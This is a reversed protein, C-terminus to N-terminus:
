NGGFFASDGDTYGYRQRIYPNVSKLVRTLRDTRGQDIVRNIDSRSVMLPPADKFRPDSAYSQRASNIQDPDGSAIANALQRRYETLSESAHLAQRIKLDDRASETRTFGMSRALSGWKDMKEVGRGNSDILMGDSMNSYVRTAQSIATGLPFMTKPIWLRGAWPVTVPNIKQIDGTLAGQALGTLTNPIPPLPLPAFAQDEFPLPIPGSAIQSSLDVGMVDRGFNVMGNVAAFYRLLPLAMPRGGNAAEAINKVQMARRDWAGRWTADVLWNGMSFPYTTFQRLSPSALVRHQFPTTRGGTPIFQTEFVADASHRNLLGEAAESTLTRIDPGLYSPNLSLMKKWQNKSAYFTIIRNLNEAQGFPLLGIDVFRDFAEAFTSKVLSTGEPLGMELSRLDAVLGLSALEPMEERLAERISSDISLGKLRHAHVRGLARVYKPVGEKIGAWLNGMGLQPYTTVLPQTANVIMPLPRLALTNFYAWKTVFREAGITTRLDSNEVLWNRVHRGVNPKGFLEGTKDMAREIPGDIKNSIWQMISGVGRAVHMHKLDYRGALSDMYMNHVEAAIRFQDQTVGAIPHDALMDYGPLKLGAEQRMQWALSKQENPLSEMLQNIKARTNGLLAGHMADDIKGANHMHYIDRIEKHYGRLEDSFDVLGEIKKGRHLWSAQEPTLPVQLAKTRAARTVYEDFVKDINLLSDNKLLRDLLEDSTRRELYPNFAESSGPQNIWARTHENKRFAEVGAKAIEEETANEALPRIDFPQGKMAQMDKLESIKKATKTGSKNVMINVLHPELNLGGHRDMMIPLYHEIYGPPYYVMTREKRAFREYTAIEDWIRDSWDKLKGVAKTMAPTVPGIEAPLAEGPRANKLLAIRPRLDNWLKRRAFWGSDKGGSEELLERVITQYERRYPTSIQNFTQYALVDARSAVPFGWEHMIKAFPKFSNALGTGPVAHDLINQEMIMGPKDLHMGLARGGAAMGINMLMAPHTATDVLFKTWGSKLGLYRESFTAMDEPKVSEPHLLVRWVTDLTEHGRLVELTEWAARDTRFPATLIDAVTQTASSRM